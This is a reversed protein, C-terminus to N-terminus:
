SAHKLGDFAESATSHITIVTDIRTIRFVKRVNATLGALELRRKACVLKMVGVIAGLGSSDMFDVQSLDLVVRAPAGDVIRRMSDKFQVAAAADIRSAEVRVILGDDRHESTLKM